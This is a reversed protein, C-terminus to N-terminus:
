LVNTQRLISLLLGILALGMLVSGAIKNILWLGRLNFKARFLNVITTLTFWWTAAGVLVFFLGLATQAFTIGADIFTFRAFFGIFLLIILPNSITLAFSTIYDQFYSDKSQTTTSLKKVPNSKFIFYGFVTVIVAGMIEIIFQHQAIFDTVFSLSFVAIAAYFLDSTAAGLGTVFGHYKGRNLTRQICLVAIPGVPLSTLIGIFLGKYILEMM